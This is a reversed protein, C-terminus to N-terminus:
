RSQELENVLSNPILVQRRLGGKGRVTYHVGARGSLSCGVKVAAHKDAGARCLAVDATRM